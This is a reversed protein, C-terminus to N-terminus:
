ATQVFERLSTEGIVHVPQMSREVAETTFIRPPASSGPPDLVALNAIRDAGLAVLQDETPRDNYGFVSKHIGSKSWVDAETCELMIKKAIVKDTPPTKAMIGICLEGVEKGRRSVMIHGGGRFIQYTLGTELSQVVILGYRLYRKWEDPSLMKKLLQLAVIEPQSVQTFDAKGRQRYAAMPDREEIQARIRARFRKRNEIRTIEAREEVTLPKGSWATPVYGRVGINSPLDVWSGTTTTGVTCDTIGTPFVLNSTIGTAASTWSDTSTLIVRNTAFESGTSYGDYLHPEIGGQIIVDKTLGIGPVHQKKDHYNIEAVKYSRPRSGPKTCWGSRKKRYGGRAYLKREWRDQLWPVTLPM